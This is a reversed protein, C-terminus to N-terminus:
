RVFPQNSDVGSEILVIDGLIKHRRHYKVLHEVFQVACGVFVAVTAYVGGGEPPVLSPKTVVPSGASPLGAVKM